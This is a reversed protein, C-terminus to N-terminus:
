SSPAALSEIAALSVTREHEIVDALIQNLGRRPHWGVAERVKRIEPVRRAMDEFDAGHAEEYSIQVIRSPGGVLEVVREALSAIAVEETTGVNFIQSDFHGAEVLRILADVVDRVHCFCRTQAGDGYVQLDRGSLAARVFRPIVMGYRGTQRPGATNFLRVVSVPLQREKAYAFALFEDIAKSCAYGWRAHTSSGLVIDGDEGFPLDLSKGYVESTSTLMIPTNTRAAQSLVVETAHVNTEIAHVPADVVLQVGVAAALHLIVDAEDALEGVVRADHCSDITYQFREHERLHSINELSGTSLDDLAHVHHGSSLLGECLHSGIFGAGGTILVLMRSLM